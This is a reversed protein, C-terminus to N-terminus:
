LKMKQLKISSDDFVYFKDYDIIDYDNGKKSLTKIIENKIIKIEELDELDKIEKPIRKTTSHKKNNHIKIIDFLAKEIDFNNQNKFYENCIYKQIEKHTVEIVGNTQPHYPSSHIIKINKEACYNNLLNNDFEGGNDVQLISPYGFNEFFIEIKNFVEKAEKTKLIYGYYWKSFHDVIYLIYNYNVKKAIEKPITWLNAVYRYHPGNEIIIKHKGKLKKYKNPHSCIPCINIIEQIDRTIGYWFWNNKIINVYSNARGCYNFNAHNENIIANKEHIFPIKYYKEKENEKNLPNLICLRNNEDLKYNLCTKRFAYRKENLSSGHGELRKPYKLPM